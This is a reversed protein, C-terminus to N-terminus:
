GPLVSAGWPDPRGESVALLSLGLMDQLDSVTGLVPQVPDIVAHAAAALRV